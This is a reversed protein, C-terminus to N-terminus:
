ASASAMAAAAASASPMSALCTSTQEVPIMPVGSGM